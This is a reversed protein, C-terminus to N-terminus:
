DHADPTDALSRCGLIRPDAAALFPGGAHSALVGLGVLLAIDEASCGFTYNGALVSWPAVGFGEAHREVLLRYLGSTQLGQTASSLDSFLEERSVDLVHLSLAADTKIGSVLDQVARWAAELEQFDPHQLLMRMKGGIAADVAQLYVERHPPADPVVYDAVIKNIYDMVADQARVEASRSERRSPQGLLRELTEADDEVPLESEVQANDVARVTMQVQLRLEEAVADFEVPDQLRKRLHQLGQFVDLKQLLVDPHFDDLRHLAIRVDPMAPDSFRLTLESAIRAMVAAFNDVDVRDVPRELLDDAAVIGRNRRGSFDGMLLIRMAKKPSGRRAPKAQLRAFDFSSETESM